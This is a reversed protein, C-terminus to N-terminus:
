CIMTNGSEWQCCLMGATLTRVGYRACYSTQLAVLRHAAAAAASSHQQEIQIDPLWVPTIQGKTEGQLAAM